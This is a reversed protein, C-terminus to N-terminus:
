DVLIGWYVDNSALIEILEDRIQEETYEATYTDIVMLENKYVCSLITEDAKRVISKVKCNSYTQGLMETLPTKQEFNSTCAVFLFCTFISLTLNKM